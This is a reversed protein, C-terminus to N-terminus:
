DNGDIGKLNLYMWTVLEHMLETKFATYGSAEMDDRIRLQESYEIEAPIWDECSDIIKEIEKLAENWKM